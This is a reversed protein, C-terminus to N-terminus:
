QTKSGPTSESREAGSRGGIMSAGRFSRPWSRTIRGTTSWTISRGCAMAWRKSMSTSTLRRLALSPTMTRPLLANGTEDLDDLWRAGFAERCGAKLNIASGLEARIAREAAERSLGSRMLDDLQQEIHFRLEDSMNAEFERRRVLVRFLSRLLKLM